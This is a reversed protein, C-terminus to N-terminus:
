MEHELNEATLPPSPLAELVPKLDLGVHVHTNFDDSIIVEMEQHKQWPAACTCMFCNLEIEM